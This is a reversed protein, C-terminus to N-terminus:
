NLDFLLTQAPAKATLTLTPEESLAVGDGAHLTQGNLIMEGEAVQV